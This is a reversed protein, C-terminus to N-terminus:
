RTKAYLVLAVSVGIMLVVGVMHTVIWATMPLNAAGIGLTGAKLVDDYMNSILVAAVIILGLILFTIFFFIPHSDVLFSSILAGAWLAGLLFVITGDAREDYNDATDSLMQQGEASTIQGNMVTKLEGVFPSFAMYAM